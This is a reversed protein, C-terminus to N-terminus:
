RRARRPPRRQAPELPPEAHAPAAAPGAPLADLLRDIVAGFEAKAADIDAAHAIALGAENVAGLFMTALPRIPMPEVLGAAMAAALGQELFGLAHEGEIRHWTEWGLVAPGDVMVIRRLTPDLWADVVANYAARLAARPDPASLAATQIRTVIEAELQEFVALFLDRKDEYQHYLAGRTMGAREVIDETATGAYGRATFLERAVRILVERTHRSQEAKRNIATVRHRAAPM